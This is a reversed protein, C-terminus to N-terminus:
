YAERSGPSVGYICLRKRQGHFRGAHTTRLRPTTQDAIEFLLSNRREFYVPFVPTKAKLALKLINQTWSHDAVACYARNAM